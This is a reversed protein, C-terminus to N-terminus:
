FHFEKKVFEWCKRSKMMAIEGIKRFNVDCIRNYIYIFCRKTSFYYRQFDCYYLVRFNVYCIPYRNCIFGTAFERASLPLSKLTEDFIIDIKSFRHEIGSQFNADRIRYWNWGFERGIVIRSYYIQLCRERSNEREWVVLVSDDEVSKREKKRHRARNFGIAIVGRSPPLSALPSNKWPFVRSERCASAANNIKRLRTRNEVSAPGRPWGKEFPARDCFEEEGRGGIISRALEGM